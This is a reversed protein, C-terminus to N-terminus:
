RSMHYGATGQQGQMQRYYSVQQESILNGNRFSETDTKLNAGTQEELSRASNPKSPPSPLHKTRRGHASFYLHMNYLFYLQM